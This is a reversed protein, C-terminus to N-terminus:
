WKSYYKYCPYVHPFQECYKEPNAAFRLDIPREPYRWDRYLPQDYYNVFHANNEDYIYPQYQRVVNRLPHDETVITLKDKIRPYSLKSPRAKVVTPDTLETELGDCYVYNTQPSDQNKCNLPSPIAQTGPTVSTCDVYYFSSHNPNHEKLDVIAKKGPIPTTMLFHHSDRDQLTPDNIPKVAEDLLYMPNGSAGSIFRETLRERILLNIIYYCVYGFAILFLFIFLRSM